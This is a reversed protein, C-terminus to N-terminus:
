PLQVFLLPSLTVHHLRVRSGDKLSLVSINKMPLRFRDLGKKRRQLSRNVCRHLRQVFVSIVDSLINYVSFIGFYRVTYLSESDGRARSIEVHPTLSLVVVAM